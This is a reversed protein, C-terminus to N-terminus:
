RGIRHPIYRSRLEAIKRYLALSYDAICAIDFLLKIAGQSQLSGPTQGRAATVPTRCFAVANQAGCAPRLGSFRALAIRALGTPLVLYILLSAKRPDKKNIKNQRQLIPLVPNSFVRCRKLRAFRAGFPAFIPWLRNLDMGWPTGFM